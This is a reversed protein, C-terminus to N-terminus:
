FVLLLLKDLSDHHYNYNYPDGELCQPSWCSPSRPLENTLGVHFFPSVSVTFVGFNNPICSCIPFLTMLSLVYACLTFM